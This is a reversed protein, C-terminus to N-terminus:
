KTTAQAILGALTRQMKESALLMRVIRNFAELSQIKIAGDRFQSSLEGPYIQMPQRYTLVSVTYDDLAPVVLRLQIFLKQDQNVTAVEGRLIGNTAKTLAVAQERLIVIPLKINEPKPIKWFSDTM